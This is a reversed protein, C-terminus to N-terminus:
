VLIKENEKVISKLTKEFANFNTRTGISNERLLCDHSKYVRCSPVSKVNLEKFVLRTEKTLPIKAFVVDQEYEDKRAMRNYSSSIAQCTKCFEAYFEIVILMEKKDSFLSDFEQSSTITRIPAPQIKNFASLSTSSTHETTFLIPPSRVFAFSTAFELKYTLSVVVVYLLTNFKLM